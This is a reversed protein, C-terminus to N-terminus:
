SKNRERRAGALLSAIIVSNQKNQQATQKKTQNRAHPLLAFENEPSELRRRRWVCIWKDSAQLHSLKKKNKSKIKVAWQM